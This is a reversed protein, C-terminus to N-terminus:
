VDEDGEGQGGPVRVIYYVNPSRVFMVGTQKSVTNQEGEQYVTDDWHKPEPKAGDVNLLGLNLMM